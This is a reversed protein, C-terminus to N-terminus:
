DAASLAHRVLPLRDNGWFMRDGVFLTPVGFVGRAMAEDLRREHREVTEPTATAAVFAQPDLGCEEAVEEYHSPGPVGARGGLLRDFLARSVAECAGFGEAAVCALAMHRFDERSVDGYHSEDYAIGYYDAWAHADAKRFSIEYQGSPPPGSFPDSRRRAMLDRFNLPKLVIECGFDARLAPLQSFALYSYRSAIAYFVEVVSQSM